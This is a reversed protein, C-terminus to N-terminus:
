RREAARLQVLPDPSIACPGILTGPPLLHAADFGLLYLGLSDRDPNRDVLGLTREHAAVQDAASM